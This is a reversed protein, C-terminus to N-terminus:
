HIWAGDHATENRGACGFGPPSPTAVIRIAPLFATAARLVLELSGM